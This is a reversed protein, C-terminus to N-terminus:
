RLCVPLQEDNESSSKTSVFLPVIGDYTTKIYARRGNLAEDSWAPSSFATMFSSYSHPRLEAVAAAQDGAPVDAYFM